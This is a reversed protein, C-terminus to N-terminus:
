RSCCIIKIRTNIFFRWVAHCFATFKSKSSKTTWCQQCLDNNFKTWCAAANCTRYFWNSLRALHKDTVCCHSISQTTLVITM